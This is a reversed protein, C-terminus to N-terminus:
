NSGVSAAKSSDRYMGEEMDRGNVMAIVAGFGRRFAVREARHREAEEKLTDDAEDIDEAQSRPPPSSHSYAPVSTDPAPETQVPPSPSLSTRQYIQPQSPSRFHNNPSPFASISSTKVHKQTSFNTSFSATPTPGTPSLASTPTPYSNPYTSSQQYSSPSTNNHHPSPHTPLPGSFHTRPTFESDTQTITPYYRQAYQNPLTNLPSIAPYTSLPSTSGIAYSLTPDNLSDVEQRPNPLIGANIAASRDYIHAAQTLAPSTTPASSPYGLIANSNSNPSGTVPLKSPESATLKRSAMAMALGMSDRKVIM